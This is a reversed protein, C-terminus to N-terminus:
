RYKKLAKEKTLFKTKNLKAIKEEKELKNAVMEMEIDKILNYEKNLSFLSMRLVENKSKAYGLSIAKEIIMEPAGEVAITTRM